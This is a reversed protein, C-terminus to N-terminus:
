DQAKRLGAPTYERQSRAEYIGKDVTLTAHTDFTRLHKIEVPSDVDFFMRYLKKNDDFAQYADVVTAIDRDAVMVHDHGTESHAVVYAGNRTEMKEMKLNDPIKNIRFIIFDGQAAFKGLEPILNM